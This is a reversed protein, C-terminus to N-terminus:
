LYDAQASLACALVNNDAIDSCANVVATPEILNITAALQTLYNKIEHDPYQYKKRIRPANLTRWVESLIFPSLFLDHSRSEQLVAHSQGEPTLFASVLINADLVIIKM